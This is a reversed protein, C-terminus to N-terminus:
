HTIGFKMMSEFGAATGGDVACRSSVADCWGQFNVSPVEVPGVYGFKQCVAHSGHADHALRMLDNLVERARLGGGKEGKKGPGLGLAERAKRVYASGM